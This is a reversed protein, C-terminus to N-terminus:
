RPSPSPGGGGGTIKDMLNSMSVDRGQSTLKQMTKMMDKMEEFQQILQNVDRVETGSGRAIRRRRMGNLIDPNTREEPTMSQIIAEIHKFADEDIDLDSIKNVVGPIMGMLEKISGM